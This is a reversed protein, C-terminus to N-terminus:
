AAAQMAVVRAPAPARRSDAARDRERAIVFTLGSLVWLMEMVYTTFIANATISGVVVAVTAACTGAALGRHERPLSVDRWLSRCRRCILWLMTCYVALGVFGTMAVVFLLGGDSGYSAAGSRDVGAQMLAYKFANFGVGFLPYDSIIEITQLWGEIRLAASSGESFSLKGYKLAFQLLFPSAAATLVGTLAAFRLLRRSLGRSALIVLVGAGFGLVSGRSLTMALAVLLLMVRWLPQRAGMTMRGLQVLLGIVLMMAVLNPDLITSVLRHGQPDWDLYLRSDPYVMQAFGPLFIAQIVGFGAIIVLMWEVSAWIAAIGGVRVVNIVAVYVGFYMLWRALFALSIAVQLPTLGLREISWLASGGGVAAFALAALAVRDLHLERRLAAVLAASAIIAAVCMENITLPISRESSSFVPLRLLNAVVMLLQSLCIIQTASVRLGHATGAGADDLTLPEVRSAAVM